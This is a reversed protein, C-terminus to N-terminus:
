SQIWSPTSIQTVHLTDTLYMSPTGSSKLTSDSHHSSGEAYVYMDDLGGAAMRAWQELRCWGRQQYTAADCTLSTDTHTCTPCLMVFYHTVSSYVGISQISLKQLTLNEQPISFYDIWLYLDDEAIGFKICLDSAADCAASYHLGNPDPENWGLWQHSIFLTSHNAV